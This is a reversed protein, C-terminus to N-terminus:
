EDDDNEWEKMKRDRIRQQIEADKREQDKILLALGVREAEMAEQQSRLWPMIWPFRLLKYLDM